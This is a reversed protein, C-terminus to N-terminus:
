TMPDAQTFEMRAGREGTAVLRGNVMEIRGHDNVAELFRKELEGGEGVCFRKTVALPGMEVVGNTIKWNGGLSNCGTFGSVRGERQFELRPRQKEDLGAGDVSVWTKGVLSAETVAAAGGSFPAACAALALAAILQFPRRMPM